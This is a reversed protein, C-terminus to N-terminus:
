IKENYILVKATLLNMRLYLANVVFHQNEVFYVKVGASRSGTVGLIVGFWLCKIIFLIFEMMNIM